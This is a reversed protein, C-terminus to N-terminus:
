PLMKVFNELYDHRLKEIEPRSKPVVHEAPDPTTLSIGNERVEKVRSLRSLTLTQLREERVTELVFQALQIGEGSYGYRAGPNRHFRM